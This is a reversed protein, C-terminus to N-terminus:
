GGYDDVILQPFDNRILKDSARGLKSPFDALNWDQWIQGYKFISNLPSLPLKCLKPWVRKGLTTCYSDSNRLGVSDHFFYQM